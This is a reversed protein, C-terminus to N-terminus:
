VVVSDTLEFGDVCCVSFLTEVALLSGFKDILNGCLANFFDLECFENSKLVRLFTVESLIALLTQNNLWAVTGSENLTM